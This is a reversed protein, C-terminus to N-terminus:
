VEGEDGELGVEEGEIDAIAQMLAKTTAMDDRRYIDILNRMMRTVTKRNTTPELYEPRYDVNIERLFRRCDSYNIITGGNFPDIYFEESASRYKV